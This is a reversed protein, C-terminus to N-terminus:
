NPSDFSLHPAGARDRDNGQRCADLQASQNKIGLLSPDISGFSATDRQRLPFPLKERKEQHTWVLKECGRLHCRLCPTRFRRHFLEPAVHRTQALLERREPRVTGQDGLFTLSVAQHDFQRRGRGSGRDWSCAKTVCSNKRISLWAPEM